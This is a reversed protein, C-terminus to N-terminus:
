ELLTSVMTCTSFENGLPCVSLNQLCHKDAVVAITSGSGSLEVYDIPFQRLFEKGKEVFPYEKNLKQAFSNFFKWEKPHKDWMEKADGEELGYLRGQGYSDLAAYAEQTNIGMHPFCLLIDLPRPTLPVIKEGIGEMWAAPYPHVFLPVDAGVSASERILVYWPVAEEFHQNLFRLLVGADSSGGGLGAQMPINKTLRIKIGFQKGSLKKYFEVAKYLIDTNKEFFFDDANVLEYGQPMFEIFLHDFLNVKVCLSRLSHYGDARKEGIELHLNVKAPAYLQVAM